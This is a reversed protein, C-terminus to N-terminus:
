YNTRKSNYRNMCRIVVRLRPCLLVFNPFLRYGTDLCRHHIKNEYNSMRFVEGLSNFENIQKTTGFAVIEIPFSPMSPNDSIWKSYGLLNSWYIGIDYSRQYLM